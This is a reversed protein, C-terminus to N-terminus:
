RHWGRLNEYLSLVNAPIVNHNMKIAEVPPMAMLFRAAFGSSFYAPNQKLRELLISPQIGGIIGVCPNKIRLPEGGKRDIRLIRGNHIVLYHGLDNGSNYRGMDGFFKELEDSYLLLGLPNESLRQGLGEGTIDGVILRKPPLPERPYDGRDEKTGKKWEIISREFDDKAEEWVTFFEDDQKELVPLLFEMTPSKAQGSQGVIATFIHAPQEHGDEIRIRAVGGIVSSIISLDCIVPTAADSLGIKLQIAVSPDRITKPLCDVPFSVYGNEAPAAAVKDDSRAISHEAIVAEPLRYDKGPTHPKYM